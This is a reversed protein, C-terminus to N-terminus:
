AVRPHCMTKCDKYTWASRTKKNEVDEKVRVVHFVRDCSGSCQIESGDKEIKLGWM